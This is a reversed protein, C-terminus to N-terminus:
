SDDESRPTHQAEEDVWAYIGSLRDFECVRDNAEILTKSNSNYWSCPHTRIIESPQEGDHLYCLDPRAPLIPDPDECLLEPCSIEKAKVAAVSAAFGFSIKRM